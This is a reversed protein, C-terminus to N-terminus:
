QLNQYLYILCLCKQRDMFNLGQKGPRPQPIRFAKPRDFRARTSCKDKSDWIRLELKHSFLQLLVDKTVTVSHSSFLFNVISAILVGHDSFAHGPLIPPTAASIITLM